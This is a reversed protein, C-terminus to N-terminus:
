RPRELSFTVTVGVPDSSPAGVAKNKLLLRICSAAEETVGKKSEIEVGEARGRVRVLFSM